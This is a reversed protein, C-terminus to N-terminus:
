SGDALPILAGWEGTAMVEKGGAVSIPIPGDLLKVTILKKEIRDKLVISNAGTDIFTSIREGNRGRLITFMFVCEGPLVQHVDLTTDGTSKVLEEKLQVTLNADSM